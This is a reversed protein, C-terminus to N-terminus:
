RRRRTAALGGLGLLALSSPTPVTPNCATHTHIYELRGNTIHALINTLDIKESAPQPTITWSQWLHLWRNNDNDRRRAAATAVGATSSGNPNTGTSTAWSGSNNNFSAGANGGDFGVEGQGTPVFIIEMWVTKTNEAVYVNSISIKRTAPDYRHIGGRQGEPTQNEWNGTRSGQYDTPGSGTPMNPTQPNNAQGNGITFDARAGSLGASAAFIGALAVISRTCYRNM